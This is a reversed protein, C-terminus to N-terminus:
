PSPTASPEPTLTAISGPTSAPAEQTNGEETPVPTVLNVRIILTQGAYIDNADEVEENQDLIDEVTSNFKIAIAALSDGPQVIYEVKFGKPLGEPLPTPTPLETGPAPILLEDGVRIIPNAPDLGLRERNFEILVLVDIEFAEAISYLNDGENVTYIVAGSRTPTLTPEPTNTPPALTATNTPTSTPPVPTATATLTLTPTETARRFMDMSIQPTEAGTLWFIVVAAGLVLLVAAIGFVLKPTRQAREQRKRYANIVDQPSDKESM